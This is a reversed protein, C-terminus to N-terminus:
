KVGKMIDVMRDWTGAPAPETKEDEIPEPVGDTDDSNMVLSTLVDQVMDYSDTVMSTTYM